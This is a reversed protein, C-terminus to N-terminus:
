GSLGDSLRKHRSIVTHNRSWRRKGTRLIDVALNHNIISRMRRNVQRSLSTLTRQSFGEEGNYIGGCAAAAGGLEGARGYRAQAFFAQLNVNDGGGTGAM